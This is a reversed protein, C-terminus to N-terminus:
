IFHESVQTLVARFIILVSVQFKTLRLSVEVIKDVEVTKNIYITNTTHDCSSYITCMTAREDATTWGIPCDICTSTGNSTSFTGVPCRQCSTSGTGINFSGALCPRCAQDGGGNKGDVSYMGAICPSPDPCAVGQYQHHDTGGYDGTYCGGYQGTYTDLQNWCYYSSSGTIQGNCEPYNCHENNSCRYQPNSSHYASGCRVCIGNM